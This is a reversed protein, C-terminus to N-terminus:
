KMKIIHLDEIIKNEEEEKWKKKNKNIDEKNKM